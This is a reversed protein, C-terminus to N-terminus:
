VTARDVEESGRIQVARRPGNCGPQARGLRVNEAFLSVGDEARAGLPIISGPTLALIDQIPLHVSAVEARLTVPAVSLARGIGSSRLVEPDDPHGRGAIRDSAPEIAAWPIMLAMASSQTNMRCEIMVVFTPESVAAVQGADSHLDIDDIALTLGGLDQWVISLQNVISEVFRQTLRWDIESFRREKPQKDATGGLLCEIASLM